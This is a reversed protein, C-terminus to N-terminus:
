LYKKNILSPITMFPYIKIFFNLTQKTTHNLFLKKSKLISFVM